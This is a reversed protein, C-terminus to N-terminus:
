NNTTGCHPCIGKHHLGAGCNGCQYRCRSYRQYRYIAFTVYLALILYGVYYLTTVSFIIYDAACIGMLGSLYLVGEGFSLKHFIDDTAAMAVIVIAWVSCLFISLITPQIFPNLTPYYYFHKWTEPAFLQISSYFTAASAVLIALLTPYFSDIDNFHVVKANRKLIIRLVYSISILSIVFLFVLLHVDSFISIFQSIPDDPVVKDLLEDEVIWGFTYQDRAVQVWISDPCGNIPFIDAVVINDNKYLHITDTITEVPDKAPIRKTLTLSDSKVVFNYNKSYHHTQSFSTSDIVGSVNSTDPVSHRTKNNYCSDCVLCVLLLIIITKIRLM